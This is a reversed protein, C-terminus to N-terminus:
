TITTIQAETEGLATKEAVNQLKLKEILDESHLRIASVFENVVREMYHFPRKTPLAGELFGLHGGHSTVIMALMSDPALAEETPLDEGPQMPDDMANLGVVPISFKHIEPTITAAKYYEAYSEYGFQPATFHHDFERLTKSALVKAFDWCDRSELVKMNM